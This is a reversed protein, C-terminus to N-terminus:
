REMETEIKVAFHTFFFSQFAMFLIEWIFYDFIQGFCVTLIPMILLPPGRLSRRLWIWLFLLAAILGVAGMEIWLTLIPNHANLINKYLREFQKTSRFETKFPGLDKSKGLIEHGSTKTGSGLLPLSKLGVELASRFLVFRPDIKELDKYSNINIIQNITYKFRKVLNTEANFLFIFWVFLSGLLFLLLRRKNSSKKFTLILLCLISIFLTFLGNRSNSIMISWISALITLSSIILSNRFHLIGFFFMGVSIVAYPNRNEFFSSPRHDRYFLDIQLGNESLLQPISLQSKLDLFTLFVFIIYTGMFINCSKKLTEKEIAFQFALFTLLYISYRGSHKLAIGPYNSFISGIWMWFFLFILIILPFNLKEWIEITRKRNWIICFLAIPPLILTYLSLRIPFKYNILNELIQQIEPLKLPLSLLILLGVFIPNIWQKLNM